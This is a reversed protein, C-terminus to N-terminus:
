YEILIDATFIGNEWEFSIIGGLQKVANKISSIGIGHGSGLKHTTLNNTDVEDSSNMICISLKKEAQIISIYVYKNEESSREAGEIANDLLNALIRCLLLNDINMKDYVNVKNTFEIGRSLAENWKINIISDVASIGTYCIGGADSLSDSLKNLYYIADQESGHRFMSNAVSIQNRIDHKLQRIETYKSEILNYNDEEAKIRQEMVKMKLKDAYTDFFNFVLLNLMMLGAVSILYIIIQRHNLGYSVFIGNLILVSLLPVLIIMIWNILPIDKQKSKLYEVIYVSFWFCFMKSCAMGIYRGMGSSLQEIPTGFNLLYLIGMPLIEATLIVMVFIFSYFIIKQIKSEFLLTSTLLMAICTILLRLWPSDNIMTACTLAAFICVSTPILVKIQYKFNEKMLNYLYFVIILSEILCNAIEIVYDYIAM